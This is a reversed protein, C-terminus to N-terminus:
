TTVVVADFDTGRRSRLISVQRVVMKRDSCAKLSSGSM